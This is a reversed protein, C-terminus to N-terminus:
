QSSINTNNTSNNNFLRKCSETSLTQPFPPLTMSEAMAKKYVDKDLIAKLYADTRLREILNVILGAHRSLGVGVRYDCAHQSDVHQTQAALESHYQIYKTGSAIYSWLDKPPTMDLPSAEWPRFLVAAVSENDKLIIRKKTPPEIAKDGAESPAAAGFLGAVSASDIGAM